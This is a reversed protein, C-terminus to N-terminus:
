MDADFFPSERDCIQAVIEKAGDDIPVVVGFWFADDV